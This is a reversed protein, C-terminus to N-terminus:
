RAAGITLHQPGFRMAQTNEWLFTANLKGLTVLELFAFRDEMRENSEEVASGLSRGRVWRRLFYVYFLPSISLRGPHSVYAAAGRELWDNAQRADGCGTNYVLRVKARLEPEIGDLWLVYPKSGHVLLFIDVHDNRRLLERLRQVLEPLQDYHSYQTFYAVEDYSRELIPLTFLKSGHKFFPNVHDRLAVAARRELRAGPAPREDALPLDGFWCVGDLALVCSMLTILLALRARWPKHDMLM